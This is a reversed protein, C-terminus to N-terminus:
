DNPSARSTNQSLYSRTGILGKNLMAVWWAFVGGVNGANRCKVKSM